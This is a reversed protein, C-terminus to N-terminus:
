KMCKFNSVASIRQNSTIETVPQKTIMYKKKKGSAPRMKRRPTRYPYPIAIFNSRLLTQLRANSAASKIQVAGANACPQAIHLATAFLVGFSPCRASFRAIM